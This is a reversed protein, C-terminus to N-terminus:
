VVSFRFHIEQLVLRQLNLRHFSDFFVSNLGDVLKNIPMLPFKGLLLVLAWGMVASTLILVLVINSMRIEEPVGEFVNLRILLFVLGLALLVAILLVLFCVIALLVVLSFRKTREQM